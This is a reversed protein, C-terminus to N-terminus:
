PSLDYESMANALKVSLRLAAAAGADTNTAYSGTIVSREPGKRGRYCVALGVVEGRRAKNLLAELVEVTDRTRFRDIRVVNM